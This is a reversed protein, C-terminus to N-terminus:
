SVTQSGNWFSASYLVGFCGYAYAPLRLRAVRLDGLEVVLIPVAEREGLVVPIGAFPLHLLRRDIVDDVSRRMRHVRRVVHRRTGPMAECQFKSFVEAFDSGHIAPPVGSRRSKGAFPLEAGVPCM